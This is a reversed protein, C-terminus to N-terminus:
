PIVFGYGKFIARGQSGRLFKYFIAAAPQAKTTLAIPYVIPPHSKEPFIGVIRVKPEVKADTEYVIGLPAERRAVLALAFRVNETRALRDSIAPWVGLSTLSARAYRGIPVSEPDGTALRGDPGLAKVIPFGRAIKLKVASDAPAILALRGQMLNARSKTAILGRTQVYDMWELDASLFMDAPAGAELQRALASSSAFSFRVPIGTKGTFAKGSAQLADTLSAAAFVTVPEPAQAAAMASSFVALAPLLSKWLTTIRRMFMNM